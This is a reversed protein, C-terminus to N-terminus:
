FLKVVRDSYAVVTKGNQISLLFRVMPRYVVVVVVFVIFRFTAQVVGVLFRFYLGLGIVMGANGTM